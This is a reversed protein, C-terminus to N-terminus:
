TAVIVIENKPYNPLTICKTYIIDINAFVVAPRLMVLSKRTVHVNKKDGHKNLLTIYLPHAKPM